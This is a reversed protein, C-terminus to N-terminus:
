TKTLVRKLGGVATSHGRVTHSNRRTRQGRAPLGLKHRIGRYTRIDRMRRINQYVDQKLQGEVLIENKEIYMRLSEWESSSLEGVKVEENLGVDKIIKKALQLGIGHIENLGYVIRKNDNIEVGLFRAM